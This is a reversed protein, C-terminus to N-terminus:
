LRITHEVIKCKKESNTPFIHPTLLHPDLNLRVEDFNEDRKGLWLGEDVLGGVVGTDTRELKLKIKLWLGVREVVSM